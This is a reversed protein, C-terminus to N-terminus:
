GQTATTGAEATEPEAAPVEAGEPAAGEPAAAEPEAAAVADAEELADDDLDHTETQGGMDELISTIAKVEDLPALVGVAAKGGALHEALQDRAAGDLGLGKRHLAGAVGGAVVGALLTPPAVIALVLGIGAGKGTSRSGMKHDKLKGNKDLVLVGISTLKNAYERDWDKLAAAAEDAKAEDSYVSLVLQTKEAM